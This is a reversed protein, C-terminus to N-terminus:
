WGCPIKEGKECKIKWNCHFLRHEFHMRVHGLAQLQKEVTIKHTCVWCLYEGEIQSLFTFHVSDGEQVQEIGTSRPPRVVKVNCAGGKGITCSAVAPVSGVQTDETIIRTSKLTAEIIKKPPDNSV